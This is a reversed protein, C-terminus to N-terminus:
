ACLKTQDALLAFKGLGNAGNQFASNRVPGKANEGAKEGSRLVLRATHELARREPKIAPGRYPAAPMCCHPNKALDADV